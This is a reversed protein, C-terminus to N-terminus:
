ESHAGSESPAHPTAFGPAGNKSWLPFKERCFAGPHGCSHARSDVHSRQCAGTGRFRSARPRSGALADITSDRLFVGLAALRGVPIVVGTAASGAAREAESVSWM